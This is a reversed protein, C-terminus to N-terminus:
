RDRRNKLRRLLLLDRHADLTTLACDAPRDFLAALQHHYFLAHSETAHGLRDDGVYFGYAMGHLAPNGQSALWVTVVLLALGGLLQNMAGFLPWLALAGKGGGSSFALLLASGVAVATAPHTKSLSPLRSDRAIEAIMYRQLRTATDLTTAAIAAVFLGMLATSYAEPIGISALLNSSGTVFAAIKSGLGQAHQWSAYQHHFAASGTLLHRGCRHGYGIRSRLCDTRPDSFLRRPAHEWLEVRRM